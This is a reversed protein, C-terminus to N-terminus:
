PPKKFCISCTFVKDWSTGNVRIVSSAGAIGLVKVTERFVATVVASNQHYKFLKEFFQFLDKLSKNNKETVPKTSLQFRHSICHSSLMLQNAVNKIKKYVGNKKGRLVNVGDSKIGITLPLDSSDDVIHSIEKNVSENIEIELDIDESDSALPSLSADSDEVSEVSPGEDDSEDESEHVAWNNWDFESGTLPVLLLKWHYADDLKKLIMEFLQDGNAGNTIDIGVFKTFVKGRKQIM